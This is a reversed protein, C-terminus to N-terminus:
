SKMAEEVFGSVSGGDHLRAQVATVLRGAFLAGPRHNGSNRWGGFPLQGTAGATGRNWNVVGCRLRSALVDFRSQQACFVAAALGYELDNIRKLGEEDDDIPILVLDPGFHEHTFYDHDAWAGVRLAPSLFQGEGGLDEGACL